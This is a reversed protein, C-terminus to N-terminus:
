NNDVYGWLELESLCTDEYKAGSAAKLITIRLYDTYIPTGYSIWDSYAQGEIDQYEYENLLSEHSNGDSYSLEIRKIKGNNNFVNENKMYGNLLGINTFYVPKGFYIEIYEGEGNGDVGEAWCTDKNGDFVAEASYTNTSDTLESSASITDIYLDNLLIVEEEEEQEINDVSEDAAQVYDTQASDDVTEDENPISDDESTSINEKLNENQNEMSYDENGYDDNIYATEPIDEDSYEEDTIVEEIIEDEVLLSGLWYLGGLIILLCFISGVGICTGILWKRNQMIKLNDKEMESSIAIKSATEGEPSVVINQQINDIVNQCCIQQITYGIIGMDAVTNRYHYISTRFDFLAGIISKRWRITFSDDDGYYIDYIMKKHTLVPNGDSGKEVQFNLPSLKEVLSHILSEYPVKNELFFKQRRLRKWKLDLICHKIMLASLLTLLSVGVIGEIGNHMCIGIIFGLVVAIVYIINYKRGGDDLPAMSTLKLSDQDKTVM